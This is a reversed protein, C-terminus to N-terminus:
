SWTRTSAAPSSRVRSTNMNKQVEAEEFDMSGSNDIVFIIDAPQKINEAEVKVEACADDTTSDDNTPDNTPDTTTSVTTPDPGTTDDGTEASGASTDGTSADNTGQTPGNSTAQSASESASGGDTPEGMTGEGATATAGTMTVSAVTTVQGSGGSGEATERTDGDACALPVLAACGLVLPSLSRLLTM